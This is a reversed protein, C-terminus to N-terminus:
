SVRKVYLVPNAGVTVPETGTNAVTVRDYDGCCNKLLTATAVNNLDAAATPVSIMTTEPLPEGGIELTLQVPTAATAGGINASFHLEYVGNCRLKVSGTGKRHCEGCGSHLIVEDFTVSAGPEITQAITNTLVIM